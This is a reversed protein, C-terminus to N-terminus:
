VAGIGVFEMPPIPLVVNQPKWLHLCHPHNNVYEDKAPHYQIVSEDKHWFIDKLWCMEEWTPCRALSCSILTMSAHDWGGGWSVIIRYDIMDYQNQIQVAGGDEAREIVCVYYRKDKQMKRLTEEIEKRLKM